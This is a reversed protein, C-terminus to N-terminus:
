DLVLRLDKDHNRLLEEESNGTSGVIVDDVYADAFDLGGLVEEM